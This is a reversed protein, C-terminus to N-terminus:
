RAAKKTKAKANKRRTIWGKKAVDSRTWAAPRSPQRAAAWAKWTARKKNADVYESAVSAAEECAQQDMASMTGKLEPRLKFGVLEGEKADSTAEGVIKGSEAEKKARFAAIVASPDFTVPEGKKAGSAAVGVIKGDPLPGVEPKPRAPLYTNELVTKIGRMLIDIIEHQTAPDGDYNHAIVAGTHSDVVVIADTFKTLKEVTM